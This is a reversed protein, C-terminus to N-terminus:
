LFLFLPRKHTRALLTTPVNPHLSGLSAALMCICARLEEGLLHSDSGYELHDQTEPLNSTSIALVLLCLLRRSCSRDNEDSNPLTEDVSRDVLPACV